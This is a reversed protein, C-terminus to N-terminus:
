LRVSQQRVSPHQGAVQPLVFSFLATVVVVLAVYASLVALPRSSATWSGGRWGGQPVTPFSPAPGTSCSHSPSGSSCPSEAGGPDSGGRGWILDIKVLVLVLVVSYTIIM